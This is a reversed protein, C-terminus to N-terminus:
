GLYVVDRQLGGSVYRRVVAPDPEQNPEVVAEQETAAGQQQQQQQAGDETGSRTSPQAAPAPVQLCVNVCVNVVGRKAYEIHHSSSTWNCHSSQM